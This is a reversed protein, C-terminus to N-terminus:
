GDPTTMIGFLESENGASGRNIHQARLAHHSQGLDYAGIARRLSFRADRARGATASGFGFIKREM